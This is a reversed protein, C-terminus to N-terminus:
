DGFITKYVKNYEDNLIIYPKIEDQVWVYWIPNEALLNLGYNIIKDPYHLEKYENYIAIALAYRRKM